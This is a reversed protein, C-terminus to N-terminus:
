LHNRMEKSATRIYSDKIFNQIDDMPVDSDLDITIWHRKNMHWGHTIGEYSECLADIEWPSVKVNMCLRQKLTFILIFWKKNDEHRLVTFDPDEFPYDELVGPLTKAFNIIDAREM